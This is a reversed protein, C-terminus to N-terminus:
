IGILPTSGFGVEEIRGCFGTATGLLHGICDRKNRIEVNKTIPIVNTEESSDAASASSGRCGAGAGSPVRIAKEQCPSIDPQYGSTTALGATQGGM